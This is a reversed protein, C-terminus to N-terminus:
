RSVKKLLNNIFKRGKETWVLYTHTVPIGNWYTLHTRNQAYGKRAYPAYLLYQGSQWYIVRKERLKRNMKQPTMGMGKAVQTATLCSVSELVNDAYDAKPQLVKIQEDKRQLAKQAVMVARAWFAEDTEGPDTMIYGGDRRLAPLVEGTIWKRFENAEPKRSVLIVEYLGSENVFLCRQRRGRTDPIVHKSLMEDSLRIRVKGATLDLARCVDKLAFLPGEAGCLTRIAGFQPSELFYKQM